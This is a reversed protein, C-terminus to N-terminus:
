QREKENPIKWISKLEHVKLSHIMTYGGKTFVTLGREEDNFYASIPMYLSGNNAFIEVSVRDVLIRLRIKGDEPKLEAEEEGCSLLNEVRNFTVPM